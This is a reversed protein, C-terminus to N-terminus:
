ISSPNFNAPNLLGGMPTGGMGPNHSQSMPQNNSGVIAPSLESDDTSSVIDMLSEFGRAMSGIHANTPLIIPSKTANTFASFMHPSAGTGNLLDITCRMKGSTDAYILINFDAGGTMTRIGHVVESKIRSAANQQFGAVYPVLRDILPATAPGPVPIVEFPNTGNTQTTIMFCGSLLGSEQVITPVTLGLMEAIENNWTTSTHAMCSMHSFRLQEPLLTLDEQPTPLFDISLRRDSPNLVGPALIELERFLISQNERLRDLIDAKNFMPLEVISPVEVDDKANNIVKYPDFEGGDINAAQAKATNYSVVLDKAYATPSDHRANSLLPGNRLSAATDIVNQPMIQSEIYSAGINRLVDSPRATWEHSGVSSSMNAGVTNTQHSHLLNSVEVVPRTEPNPNQPTVTTPLRISVMKNFYLRTDPNIIKSQLSTDYIDTYGMLIKISTSDRSILSREEFVLTFRCRREGYGNPLILNSDGNITKLENVRTLSLMNGLVNQFTRDGISMGHATTQRLADRLARDGSSVQFGRRVHVPSGDIDQIFGRILNVQVQNGQLGLVSNDFM